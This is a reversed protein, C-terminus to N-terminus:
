RVAGTVPRAGKRPAYRGARYSVQGGEILRDLARSWSRGFFTTGIVRYERLHALLEVENRRMARRIKTNTNEM